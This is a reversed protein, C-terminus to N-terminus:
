CDFIYGNLYSAVGFLDDETNKQATLGLVVDCEGQPVKRRLDNMLEFMSSLSNDSSWSEFSM